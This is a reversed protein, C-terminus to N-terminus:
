CQCNAIRLWRLRVKSVDPLSAALDAAQSLLLVALIPSEKKSGAVASKLKAQASKFDEKEIDTAASTALALAGLEGDLTFEEGLNDIIGVTYAAVDLLERLEGTLLNSAAQYADPSPALVFLNYTYIPSSAAVSQISKVAADIDGNAALSFFEWEPPLEVSSDGNLLSQIEDEHSVALNPLLLNAAPFPFIGIPQPRLEIM